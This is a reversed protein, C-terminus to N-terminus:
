RLWPQVCEGVPVLQYGSGWVSTVQQGVLALMPQSDLRADYLGNLLHVAGPGQTSLCVRLGGTCKAHGCAMFAATEEHRAQM